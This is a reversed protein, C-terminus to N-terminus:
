AAMRKRPKRAAPAPTLRAHVEEDILETATIAAKSFQNAQNLSGEATEKAANILWFTEWPSAKLSRAFFHSFLTQAESLQAEATSWFNENRTATTHVVETIFAPVDEKLVQHHLHGIHETWATLSVDGQLKKLQQGSRTLVRQTLSAGLNLQDGVSELYGQSLKHYLAISNQRISHIDAASLYM